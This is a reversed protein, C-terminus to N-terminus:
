LSVWVEGDEVRVAYCNVRSNPNVPSCGSTLSFQWQHWPCLVIGNDITGQHLPAGRHPCTEDLAFFEGRYRFVAIRKDGIDVAVGVGEPIDGASAVRHETM